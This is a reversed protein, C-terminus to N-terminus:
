AAAEMKRKILLNQAITLLSNVLIYLVLASPLFLMFLTFMIPMGYKMIKAQMEDTATQPTLWMQVAQIIGVLIPMVYYPDPSSLDPVWLGMPEHYLEVSGLIAGYLGIWIPLQLLMPLCGAFPNVGERKMLAMQEQAFKQRDGGVKKKLEDLKPKLNKMRQMSMYSKQSLPWTVLKLVLTLLIIAFPWSGLGGHFWVLVQHMPAGIFSIWGFQVSRKLDPHSAALHTTDKPGNYLNFRWTAQRRNKLAEYSRDIADIDGGAARTKEWGRRVEDLSSAVTLGLRELHPKCSEGKPVHPNQADLWEPLCADVRGPIEIVNAGQFQAWMVWAGPVTPDFDRLGLQCQGGLESIPTPVAAQIFYNTDTAVWQAGTPFSRLDVAPQGMEWKEIAEGRLSSFPASEVGDLALCSAQLVPTPAGFMSPGKAEPHQWGGIRLGNQVQALQDGLNHVTVALKLEYPHTGVDIRREIWIPSSDTAPNPWVYVLPLGPTPSIRTFSRDGEYLHEVAGSRTLEYVVGDVAGDAFPRNPTISGGAGVASVRYEGAISAPAVVKLIDDSAVARDVILESRKLPAELVGGKVVGGQVQGGPHARVTITAQGPYSLKGFVSSFPLWKTGWTTVMDIPGAVLKEAPAGAIPAHAAQTFRPEQLVARALTAGRSTFTYHVAPLEVIVREEREPQQGDIVGVEVRGAVAQGRTPAPEVPGAPAQGPQPEQARAPSVSTPASAAFSWVLLLATAAIKLARYM